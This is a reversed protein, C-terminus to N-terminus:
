RKASLTRWLIFLIPHSIFSLLFPVFIVFIYHGFVGYCNSEGTILLYYFINELLFFEKRFIIWRMLFYLCDKQKRTSSLFPNNLSPNTNSKFFQLKYVRKILKDTCRCACTCPIICHCFFCCNTCTDVKIIIDFVM